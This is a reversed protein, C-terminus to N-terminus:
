RDTNRRSHSAHRFPVCTTRLIRPDMHIVSGNRKRRSLRHSRPRNKPGQIVSPLSSRESGQQSKKRPGDEEIRDKRRAEGRRKTSNAIIGHSSTNRDSCEKEHTFILSVLSIVTRFIAYGMHERHPSDMKSSVGFVILLAMSSTKSAQAHREFFRAPCCGSPPLEMHALHSIFASIIVCRTHHLRHQIVRM